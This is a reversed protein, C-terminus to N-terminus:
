ATMRRNGGCGLGVQPDESRTPGTASSVAGRLSHLAQHLTAKVTGASCSLIEATQDTSLGALLRLLVVQRRRLPLALIRSLQLDEVVQREEVEEKTAVQQCQCNAAESLDTFRRRHALSRVCVTRAVRLLWNKLSGSGRFSQRREWAVAWTQQVLDDLSDRDAAFRRCYSALAVGCEAVLTSFTREDGAHFASILETDPRRLDM